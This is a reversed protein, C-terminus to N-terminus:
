TYGAGGKSAPNDPHLVDPKKFYRIRECDVGLLDAVEKPRM